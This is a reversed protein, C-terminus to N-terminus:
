CSASTCLDESTVTVPNAPIEITIGEGSGGFAALVGGIIPLDFSVGVAEVTITVVAGGDTAGGPRGVYGLGSRHYTVRVNEERLRPNVDCMGLRGGAAANCTGDSGYFIWDLADTDVNTGDSCTPPDTPPDGPCSIPAVFNAPDTPDPFDEGPDLTSNALASINTLPDSVAALRAGHQMAKVTQNWQFVAFGFEILAAFVLLVLPIVLLGEVLAM